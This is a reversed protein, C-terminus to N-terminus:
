FKPSGIFGFGLSSLRSGRAELMTVEKLLNDWPGFFFPNDGFNINKGWIHAKQQKVIHNCCLPM